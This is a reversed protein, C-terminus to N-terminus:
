SHVPTPTAPQGRGSIHFDFGQGRIHQYKSTFGKTPSKTM